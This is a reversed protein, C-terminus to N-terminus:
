LYSFTIPPSPPVEQDCPPCFSSPLPTKGHDFLPFFSNIIIDLVLSRTSAVSPWPNPTEATVTKAGIWRRNVIDRLPGETKDYQSWNKNTEQLGIVTPHFTAYSDFIAGLEAQTTTHLTNINHSLLRIDTPALEPLPTTTYGYLNTSAASHPSTTLPPTHPSTPSHQDGNPTPLEAATVDQLLSM